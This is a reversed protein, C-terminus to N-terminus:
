ERRAIAANAWMVAAELETVALSKERSDPALDDIVRAFDLARRRLESYRVAQDGKPPHYTFRQELEAPGIM